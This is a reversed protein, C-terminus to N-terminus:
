ALKQELSRVREKVRDLQLSMAAREHQDDEVVKSIGDLLEIVEEMQTITAMGDLKSEVRKTRDEVHKYLRDFQDDFRVQQSGLRMGVDDFKKNLNASLDAILKVLESDNM